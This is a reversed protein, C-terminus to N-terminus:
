GGPPPAGGPEPPVPLAAPQPAGTGPMVFRSHTLLRRTGGTPQQPLRIGDPAGGGSAAAEAAERRRLLAAANEQQGGARLQEALARVDAPGRDQAATILLWEADESRGVRHLAATLSPVLAVARQRAAALLVGYADPFREEARLASVVELLREASASRGLASKIWMADPERWAGLHALLPPVRTAPRDMAAAALVREADEALGLARLFALLRRIHEPAGTFGAAAAMRLAANADGAARADRVSHAAQRASNHPRPRRGAAPLGPNDPRVATILGTSTRNDPSPRPSRGGFAPGAAREPRVVPMVGTSRGGSRQRRMRELERTLSAIEAVARTARGEARDRADLALRLRLEAEARQAGADAAERQFRGVLQLSMAALQLANRHERDLEAIRGAARRDTRQRGALQLRDWHPRADSLRRDRQGADRSCVDAVAEIFDWQPNVGALRDSVTTRAPVRLDRFHEPRLRGTLDRLRLGAEDLWDRLLTALANAHESAGRVPGWPRTRRGGIGM